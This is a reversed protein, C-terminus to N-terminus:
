PNIEDFYGGSMSSSHSAIFQKYSSVKSALSSDTTIWTKLNQYLGSSMLYAYLEAKDEEIASTAYGTAFGVVAHPGSPCPGTYCSAGGSGYAFGAPNYSAWTPDSHNWSNYYNYEILHDYEHHTVQRSYVEGASTLLPSDYYMSHGVPDPTASRHQGQIALNKVIIINAVNSSSVWDTPYKAWEDILIAGYTKLSALDSESLLSYTDYTAVYSSPSVSSIEVTLSYQNFFTQLAQQAQAINGAAALSSSASTSTFRKGAVPTPSTPLQSSIPLASLTPTSKVTKPEQSSNAKIAPTSKKDNTAVSTQHATSAQKQVENVSSLVSKYTPYDKTIQTYLALAEDFKGQKSLAEAEQQLTSYKLWRVNNKSEALSKQKTSSIVLFSKSTNLLKSAESYKGARDLSSANNLHNKASINQQGFLFVFGTIIFLGFGLLIKKGLHFSANTKPGLIDSSVLFDNTRYCVPCIVNDTQYNGLFANCYKCNM